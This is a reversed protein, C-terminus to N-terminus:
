RGLRRNRLQLLINQMQAPDKIAMGAIAQNQYGKGHQSNLRSLWFRLAALELTYPFVKQEQANLPRYREYGSRFASLLEPVHLGGSDVCWDNVAVALDYILCTNCANYFDIVGSIGQEDFLVNDHFLDGHVAGQPCASLAESHQVFDEIALSLLRNEQESLVPVLECQYALMWDLERPMPRMGNFDDVALHMQALWQGVKACHESTPQDCAAGSFRPVIAGSKGKLRFLQQGNLQREPAPVHLGKNALHETLDCFYPLESSDLNEFVTLVWSFCRGGRETDLFYNTNEIGADIPTLKLVRGLSYSDLITNADDLSLHTFVAM